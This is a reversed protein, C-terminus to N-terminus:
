ARSTLFPACRGEDTGLLSSPVDGTQSGALTTTSGWAWARQGGARGADQSSMAFTELAVSVQFREAPSHRARHGPSGREPGSCGAFSDGLRWM